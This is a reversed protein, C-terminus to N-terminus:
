RAMRAPNCDNSKLKCSAACNCHVHTEAKGRLQKEDQWAPVTHLGRKGHPCPNCDACNYKLKGHPCPNCDACNSKLKGHPCPNCNACKHKLKGHPCPNCDACRYKRRGHSCRKHGAMM